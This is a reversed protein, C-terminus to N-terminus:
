QEHVKKTWSFYPRVNSCMLRKVLHVSRICNLKIKKRLRVTKWIMGIKSPLTFLTVNKGTLPLQKVNSQCGFIKHWLYIEVSFEPRTFSFILFIVHTLSITLLTLLLLWIFRVGFQWVYFAHKPLLLSPLGLISCIFAFTTLNIHLLRLHASFTVFRLFFFAVLWGVFCGCSFM